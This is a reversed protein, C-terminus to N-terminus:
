KVHITLLMKPHIHCRVPFDGSKPFPITIIQGPAQEASDYDIKDSDVYIQHIFEDQNSFALSDGAAITIENPKFSRDIQVITHTEASAAGSFAAFFLFSGASAGRFAKRAHDQRSARKM